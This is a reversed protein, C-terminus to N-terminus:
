EGDRAAAPEATTEADTVRGETRTYRATRALISPPGVTISLFVALKTWASQM